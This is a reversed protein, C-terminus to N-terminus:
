EVVAAAHPNFPNTRVALSLLYPYRHELYRVYEVWERTLVGYARQVDGALHRLDADTLDRLDGRLSLEDNLHFIARLLGAFAEHELLSPNELLRVLFDAKEALVARIEELHHVQLSVAYSHASLLRDLARAQANQWSTVDGLHNHLYEVAPDANSFCRLSRTGVNSFFVSILMYRKDRRQSRDRTKLLRDIILTVVMVSIPLFALSTLTSQWIAHLDGFCEFHIFYLLLSTAVLMLAFKIEWNLRRTSM